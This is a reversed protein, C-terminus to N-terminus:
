KDHQSSLGRRLASRAARKDLYFLADRRFIVRPVRKTKTNNRQYQQNHKKPLPIKTKKEEHTITFNHM